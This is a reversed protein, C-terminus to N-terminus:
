RARSHPPVWQSRRNGTVSSQSETLSCPPVYISVRSYVHLTLAHPKCAAIRADRTHILGHLWTVMDSSLGHGHLDDTNTDITAPVSIERCSRSILGQRHHIADHMREPVKAGAVKCFSQMCTAAYGGVNRVSAVSRSVGWGIVCLHVGGVCGAQFSLTATRQCNRKAKSRDPGESSTPQPGFVWPPTSTGARGSPSSPPLGLSTPSADANKRPM